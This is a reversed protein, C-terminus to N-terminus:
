KGFKEAIIIEEPLSVYLRDILDEIESIKVISFKIFVASQELLDEVRKLIEYITAPKQRVDSILNERALDYNRTQLYRRAAKLDEPLFKYIDDIIKEAGSKQIATYGKMIPLKYGSNIQEELEKIAIKTKSKM